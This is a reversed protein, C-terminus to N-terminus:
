PAMLWARHPVQYRHAGPIKTLWGKLEVEMLKQWMESPGWGMIAAIEDGGLSGDPELRAQVFAQILPLAEAPAPPAASTAPLPSAAPTAPTAKHPTHCLSLADKPTAVIQARGEQVLKLGGRAGQDDWEYPLVGVPRGLELAAQVTWMSGSQPRAKFLVLADALAAILRNRRPFHYRRASVTWPYESVFLAGADLLADFLAQNARPTWHGHGGPMVVITQGGPLAGRHAAADMGLAGGSVLTAGHAVLDQAFCTASRAQHLPIRRSGITAIPAPDLLRDPAGYLSLFAPPDPLQRLREPYAPDSHHLLRGRPGHRQLEALYPPLPDHALIALARPTLPHPLSWSHVHHLQDHPPLTWLACLTTAYRAELAALRKPGIGELSWLAWLAALHAQSTM